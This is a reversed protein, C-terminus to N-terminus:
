GFIFPAAVVLMTFIWGRVGRGLGVRRGAGTHEALLAGGQLIFYATPLGYGANAPLSIVLEHVLGSAAFACLTAVTTGTRRALPRFVLRLALQNFAGNWRRSWFEGVSTSRLPADMIPPADVRLARWALSILEFVGFHLISIMGVMGIWGALLPETAHRAIVFLLLGGAAIRAVASAAKKRLVSPEIAASPTATFFRAADMGPWALLYAASRFPSVGPLLAKAQSYTLWKCGLFLAVAMTWMFGWAPLFPRILLAAFPLVLLPLWSRHPVRSRPKSNIACSRHAAVWRYLADLVRHVGPLKAMWSLPSMWWVQRALFVVARAGAFSDGERTLVRMETLAEAETLGLKRQVWREQLPEFVFGRRGFVAGFHRALGTCFGCDRDYFIWGRTPAEEANEANESFVSVM